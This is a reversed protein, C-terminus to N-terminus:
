LTYRSSANTAAPRHASFQYRWTRIPHSYRRAARTTGVKPGDSTM